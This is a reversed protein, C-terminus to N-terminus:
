QCPKEVLSTGFDPLLKTGSEFTAGIIAVHHALKQFSIIDRAPDLFLQTIELLREMLIM